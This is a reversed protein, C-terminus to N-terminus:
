VFSFYFHLCAYCVNKKIEDEDNGNNISRLRYGSFNLAYALGFTFM